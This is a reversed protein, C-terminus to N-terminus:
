GGGNDKREKTMYHMLFSLRDKAFDDETVAVIEIKVKSTDFVYGM